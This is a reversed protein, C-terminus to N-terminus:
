GPGDGGGDGVALLGSTGQVRWMALATVAVVLVTVPPNWHWDRATSFTAALVDSGQREQLLVLGVFSGLVLVTGAIMGLLRIALLALCSLLVLGAIAPVPSEWPEPSEVFFTVRLLWACFPLVPLVVLPVTALALVARRQESLREAQAAEGLALSAVVVALAVALIEYLPVGRPTGAFSADVVIGTSPWAACAIVAVGNVVLCAGLHRAQALRVWGRM